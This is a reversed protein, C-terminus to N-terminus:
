QHTTQTNVGSIVPTKYHHKKLWAGKACFFVVSFYGRQNSKDPM